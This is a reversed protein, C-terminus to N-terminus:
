PTAGTIDLTVYRFGAARIRPALEALAGLESAALGSIVAISGDHGAAEVTAHPFGRSALAQRAAGIRADGSM